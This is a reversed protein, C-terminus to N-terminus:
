QLLYKLADSSLGIMRPLSRFLGPKIFPPSMRIWNAMEEHDRPYINIGLAYAVLEVLDWVRLPGGMQQLGDNYMMVCGGCVTAVDRVGKSLADNVVEQQSKFALDPNLVSKFSAVKQNLKATVGCCRSQDGSYSLERFDVGPISKLIEYQSDAIQGKGITVNRKGTSCSSLISMPRSIKRKFKLQGSIILQELYESLHLVEVGADDLTESIPLKFSKTGKGTPFAKASYALFCGPCATIIRAPKLKTLLRATHLGTLYSAKLFGAVAFVGGCCFEPTGITHYKVAAKDLIAMTLQVINPLGYTHGCGPMFLTAGEEIRNFQPNKAKELRETMARRSPDMRWKKPYSVHEILRMAVRRLPFSPDKQLTKRLLTEMMQLLFPGSAKQLLVFRLGIMLMAKSIGNPCFQHCYEDVCCRWIIKKTVSPLSTKFNSDIYDKISQMIKQALKLPINSLYCNQLCTGCATCDKMLHKLAPVILQLKNDVAQM